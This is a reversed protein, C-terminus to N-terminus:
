REHGTKGMSYFVFTRQGTKQDELQNLEKLVPM